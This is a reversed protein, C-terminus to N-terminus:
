LDLNRFISLTRRYGYSVLEASKQPHLSFSNRLFVRYNSHTPYIDILKVNSKYNLKNEVINILKKRHEEDFKNEKCYINITDILDKTQLIRSRSSQIKREIMLYIAQVCIAPLGYHILSGIEDHFHYPTHTWSSIIYDCQNDIAVHTSLTDRIEGDFYYDIKGNDPNKIPYPSYFPPVATSAAIADSMSVGTVYKVTPDLNFSPLVYKGFVSKQSHDLQSAVIFLDAEFSKFDTDSLINKEIYDHLGKTSFFGAFKNLPKLLSKILFPFSELPDYIDAKPPRRLPSKLSLIDKYTIPPLKANKRDVNSEIIDLPGYGAAFLLSILSGASSGVYTSIELDKKDGFNNKLHFGLEELALAVGLHWAAAKVVGGSLVLAGKKNKFSTLDVKGM